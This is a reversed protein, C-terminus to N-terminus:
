TVVTVSLRGSTRLANLSSIIALERREGLAHRGIAGNAGDDNAAGTGHEGGARVNLPHRLHKAIRALLIQGIRLARSLHEQRDVANGRGTM